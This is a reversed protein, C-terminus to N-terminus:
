LFARTGKVGAVRGFHTRQSVTPNSVRGIYAGRKSKQKWRFGGLRLYFSIRLRPLVPQYKWPRNCTGRGRWEPFNKENLFAGGIYTLFLRVNEGDSIYRYQFTAFALGFKLSTSLSENWRINKVPASSPIRILCRM